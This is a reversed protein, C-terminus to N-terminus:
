YATFAHCYSPHCAEIEKMADCVCDHKKAIPIGFKLDIATDCMAKGLTTRRILAFEHGHRVFLIWKPYWHKRTVRGDFAFKNLVDMINTPSHFCSAM